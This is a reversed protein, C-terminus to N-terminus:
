SPSGTQTLLRFERKLAQLARHVRVKMAGISCGHMAALEEHGLQRFRHLLLLEREEFSIRQLAQEIAIRHDAAEAAEAAHPSNDAQREIAEPDEFVQAQRTSKRCHDAAVRRAVHYMWPRFAGDERYSHCYKLMRYFVQQVLDESGHVQRTLRFLFSYLAKHHRTFLAGMKSSDGNRVALMDEHDQRAAEEQTNMAASVICPQAARGLTQPDAYAPLSREM